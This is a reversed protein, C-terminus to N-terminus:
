GGVGRGLQIIGLFLPGLWTPLLVGLPLAAAFSAVAAHAGSLRVRRVRPSPQGLAVTLLYHALGAFLSGLLGVLVWGLWPYRAFAALVLGLESFFMPLPPLGALTLVGLIWLWGLLPRTAMLGSIRGLRKSGYEALVDGATFFLGSKVFAHVVLQVLAATVALPTGIGLGVAMLGIQEVSSYALLRKLDSQVLLFPTAVAISMLGFGILLDRGFDQGVSQGLAAETRWLCVLVLALLVGSLLGSVPSPAESHADPLWTHLPAFGIKTGLGVALFISATQGLSRLAPAHLRALASFQLAALPPLGAHAGMAVLILIGLAAVLLGVSCLVVYKWAAEMASRTRPLAVLVGSTVTTLEIALWSLGLNQSVALLLLSWTFAGLWFLYRREQDPAVGHPLRRSALLTLLGVSLVVPVMLRALPDLGWMGAHVPGRVALLGLALEAVSGVLYARWPDVRRSLAALPSLAPLGLLM